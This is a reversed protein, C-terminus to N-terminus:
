ILLRIFVFKMTFNILMDLKEFNLGYLKNAVDFVGNIVNESKFYPRLSEDDFNYFEKKYKNSYYTLDWPTLIDLGDTKKAFDLLTNYEKLATEHSPKILDDILKYVNEKSKQWGEIWFLIQMRIMDLLKAKKDRLKSIMKLNDSNDFEGGNCKSGFKRYVDERISRSDCNSLLVGVNTDLTFCWFDPKGNKNANSKALDIANQPIGDLDKSDEIWYNNIKNTASLVNNSYKPSIRGLDQSLKRYEEKDNTSLNVM